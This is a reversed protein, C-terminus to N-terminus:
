RAPSELEQSIVRCMNQLEEIELRLADISKKKKGIESALKGRLDQEVSLLDQKQDILEQEETKIKQYSVYLESVDLSNLTETSDLGLEGTTKLSEPEMVDEFNDHMKRLQDVIATNKQQTETLQIAKGSTEFHENQKQKKAEYDDNVIHWFINKNKKKM